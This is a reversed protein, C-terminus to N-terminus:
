ISKLVRFHIPLMPVICLWVDFVYKNDNWYLGVWMDQLKFELDILVQPTIIVRVYTFSSPIKM